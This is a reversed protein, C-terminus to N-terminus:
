TCFLSKLFFFYPRFTRLFKIAVFLELLALIVTHNFYVSLKDWLRLFSQILLRMRFYLIWIHHLRKNFIAIRLEWLIPANLKLLQLWSTWSCVSIFFTQPLSGFCKIICYYTLFSISVLFPIM